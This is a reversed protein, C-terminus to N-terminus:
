TIRKWIGNQERKRMPFYLNLVIYENNYEKRYQKKEQERIKDEMENIKGKWNDREKDKEWLHEQM